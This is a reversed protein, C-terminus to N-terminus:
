LVRLLIVVLIIILLVWVVTSLGYQGREDNGSSDLFTMRDEQEPCGWARKM